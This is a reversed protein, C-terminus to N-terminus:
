SRWFCPAVGFYLVYKFGPQFALGFLGGSLAVAGLARRNLIGSVIKAERSLQM